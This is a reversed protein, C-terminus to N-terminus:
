ENAHYWDVIQVANPFYKQVLNWIWVAGDSVFIIEEYADVQHQIGTAWLLKGFQEAELIDCYYKMNQAQLYSQEGM